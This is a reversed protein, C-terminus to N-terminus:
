ANFIFFLDLFLVNWITDNNSSNRKTHQQKQQKSPCTTKNKQNMLRTLSKANNSFSDSQLTHVIYTFKFRFLLEFM